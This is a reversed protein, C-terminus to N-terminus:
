IVALTLTLTDQYNGAVVAKAPAPINVTVTLNSRWAGHTAIGPAGTNSNSAVHYGAVGAQAGGGNAVATYYAHASYPLNAQFVNSDYAGAANNEMGDVGGQKTLTVTNATNCGALNTRVEGWTHGAIRFANEVGASGDAYIGIEGFDLSNTSTIGLVCDKAVSATVSFSAGADGVDGVNSPKGAILSQTSVATQASAAGATLAVAAVGAILSTIKM